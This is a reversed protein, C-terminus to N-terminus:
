IDFGPLKHSQPTLEINCLKASVKSLCDWYSPAAQGEPTGFSIRRGLNQASNVFVTKLIRARDLSTEEVIVDVQESLRGSDLVFHAPFEPKTPDYPNSLVGAYRLEEWAYIPPLGEYEKLTCADEGENLKFRWHSLDPIVIVPNNEDYLGEQVTLATRLIQLHSANEDSLSEAALKEIAKDIPYNRFSLSNVEEPKFNKYFEDLALVIHRMAGKDDEFRAIHSLDRDNVM